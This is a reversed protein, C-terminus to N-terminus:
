KVAVTKMFDLLTAIDPREKSAKSIHVDFWQGDIYTSVLLHAQKIPARRPEDLFFQAVKFQRDDTKLLEIADKYQTNKLAEELCADASQCAHTKDIYVSLFMQRKESALMYYVATDGPRRQEKSLVWDERPIVIGRSNGPLSMRRETATDNVDAVTAGSTAVLALAFLCRRVASVKM